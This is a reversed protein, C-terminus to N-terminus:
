QSKGFAEAAISEGHVIATGPGLDLLFWGRDTDGKAHIFSGGWALEDGAHHVLCWVMPVEAAPPSWPPAVLSWHEGPKRTGGHIRRAADEAEQRTMAKVLVVEPPKGRREHRTYVRGARDILYRSPGIFPMPQLAM